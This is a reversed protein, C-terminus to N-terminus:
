VMAEERRYRWPYHLSLPLCLAFILPEHQTKGWLNDKTLAFLVLLDASKRLQKRWRATMLRPILVIQLLYPRKLKANCLEELM